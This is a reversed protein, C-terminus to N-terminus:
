IVEKPLDSAFVVIDPLPERRNEYHVLSPIHLWTLPEKLHSFALPPHEIVFKFKPCFFDRANISVPPLSLFTLGALVWFRM